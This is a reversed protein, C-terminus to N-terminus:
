YGTNQREHNVENKEIFAKEIDSLTFGLKNGLHLYYDFLDQLHSTIMETDEEFHIDLFLIEGAKYSLEIFMTIVDPALTPVIRPTYDRLICLQLIFHLGDVYEELVKDSKKKNESWYKFCRTEQALEALEVQFALVTEKFPIVDLGKAKKIHEMLGGQLEIMYKLNM